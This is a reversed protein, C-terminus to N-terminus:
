LVDHHSLMGFHISSTELDIGMVWLRRSLRLRYTISLRRHSFMRAFEQFEPRGGFERGRERILTDCVDGAFRM